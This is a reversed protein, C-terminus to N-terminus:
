MGFSSPQAPQTNIINVKLPTIDDCLYIDAEIMQTDQRVMLDNELIKIDSFLVIKANEGWNECWM